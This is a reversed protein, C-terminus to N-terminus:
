PKGLGVEVDQAEPYSQHKSLNAKYQVKGTSRPRGNMTVYYQDLGEPENM